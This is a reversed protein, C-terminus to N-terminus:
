KSCSQRQKNPIPKNKGGMGVITTNRPGDLTFPISWFLRYDSAGLIFYLDSNPTIKGRM